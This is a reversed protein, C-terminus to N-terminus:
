LAYRKVSGLRGDPREPDLVELTVEHTAATRHQMDMTFTGHAIASFIEIQIGQKTGDRQEFVGNHVVSVPFPVSDGILPLQTVEVNKQYTVYIARDAYTADLTIKVKTGTTDVTYDSDDLPTSEEGVRVYLPGSENFSASDCDLTVVAGGVDSVAFHGESLIWINDTGESVDGGILSSLMNLDFKVETPALTISKSQILYDLPMLSDGGNIDTKEVNFEVRLNQMSGCELYPGTPQGNVLKRTMFKGVGKIVMKKAM